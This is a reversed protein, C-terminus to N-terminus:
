IATVYLCLCDLLSARQKRPEATPWKGVPVVVTFKWLFKWLPQDQKSFPFFITLIILAALWLTLCDQHRCRLKIYLIYHQSSSAAWTFFKLPRGTTFISQAAKDRQEGGGETPAAYICCIFLAALSLTFCYCRKAHASNRVLRPRYCMWLPLNWIKTRGKYFKEQTVSSAALGGYARCMHLM